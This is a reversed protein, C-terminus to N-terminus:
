LVGCFKPHVITSVSNMEARVSSSPEGDLSLTKRSLTRATRIIHYYYTYIHIYYPWGSVCRDGRVGAGVRERGM